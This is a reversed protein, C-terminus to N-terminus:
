AEDDQFDSINGMLTQVQAWITADHMWALTKDTEWEDAHDRIVNFHFTSLRDVLFKAIYATQEPNAEDLLDFLAKAKEEYTQEKQQMGLLDQVTNPTATM